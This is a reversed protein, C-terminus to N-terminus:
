SPLTCLGNKKPTKQVSPSDYRTSECYSQIIFPGEKKPMDGKSKLTTPTSSKTSLFEELVYESVMMKCFLVINHVYPLCGIMM